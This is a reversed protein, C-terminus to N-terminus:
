IVIVRLIFTRISHNRMLCFLQRSINTSQNRLIRVELITSTTFHLYEIVKSAPVQGTGDVDCANFMIDILDEDAIFRSVNCDESSRFYVTVSVPFM